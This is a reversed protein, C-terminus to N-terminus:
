ECSESEGLAPLSMAQGPFILNPNQINPNAHAVCVWANANGLQAQAIKWMSDGSQVLYNGTANRQTAMQTAPQPMRIATGAEIRTPDSLSPNLEAIQHWRYGSGLYETALRWLTQGPQIQVTGAVSTSAPAVPKLMHASHAVSSPTPPLVVRPAVQVAAHPVAQVTAQPAAQISAHTAAHVQAHPAALSTPSGALAHPFARASSYSLMPAVGLHLSHPHAVVHAGSALAASHGMPATIAPSSFHSIMEPMAHATAASSPAAPAITSAGHVFPAANNTFTPIAPTAGPGSISDIAKSRTPSAYTPTPVYNPVTIRQVDKAVRFNRAVDGLPPPPPAAPHVDPPLIDALQWGKPAEWVERAVAFREQDEPTLIQPAALDENTYVHTAHHTAQNERAARAAAAVDQAKAPIAVLMACFVVGGFKILVDSVRWNRRTEATNELDFTQM